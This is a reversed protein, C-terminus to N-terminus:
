PLSLLPLPFSHDVARAGGDGFEDILATNFQGEMRRGQTDKYAPRARISDPLEQVFEGERELADAHWFKMRHYAAVSRFPLEYTTALRAVRQDSWNPHLKNLVYEKLIGEFDDAGYRQEANEFSLAKVNPYRAIKRKFKPARPFSIPAMEHLPKRGDIRWDIYVQHARMQERRQLWATMQPYEDKRNSARYASKAYDIHLRESYSTNFNDPTGFLRISEAYHMLSHLKPFNFHQRAGLELFIEKNKHFRKLADELEEIADLLDNCFEQLYFALATVVPVGAAELRAELGHEHCFETFIRAVFM